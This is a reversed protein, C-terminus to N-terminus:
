KDIALTSELGTHSERDQYPFENGHGSRGSRVVVPSNEGELNEKDNEPQSAERIYSGQGSGNGVRYCIRVQVLSVIVIIRLDVNGIRIENDEGDIRSDCSDVPLTKKMDRNSEARKVRKRPDHINDSDDQGADVDVAVPLSAAM